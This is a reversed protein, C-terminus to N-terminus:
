YFQGVQNHANTELEFTIQFGSRVSRPNLPIGDLASPLTKLGSKIRANFSASFYPRGGTQAKLKYDRTQHLPRAQLINRGSM